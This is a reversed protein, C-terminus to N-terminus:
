TVTILLLSEYILGEENSFQFEVNLSEGGQFPCNCIFFYINKSSYLITENAARNPTCSTSKESLIGVVSVSHSRYSVSSANMNQRAGDKPRRSMGDKANAGTACAFRGMESGGEALFFRSVFVRFTRAYM